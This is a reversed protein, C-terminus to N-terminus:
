KEPGIEEDTFCLFYYFASLIKNLILMPRGMSSAGYLYSAGAEKERQGFPVVNEESLFFLDM